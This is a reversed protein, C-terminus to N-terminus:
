KAQHIIYTVVGFVEFDMDEKIEILQFKPNQPELFLKDNKIRLRKVTFEEFLKAIIIKKDKPELSRDVILIDGSLINAEKMSDGRVRVFFTAAKNKILFENLDLNKEVFDDAPSPFGAMVPTLFLPRQLSKKKHLSFKKDMDINIITKIM